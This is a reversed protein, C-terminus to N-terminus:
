AGALQELLDESIDMNAYVAQVDDNDELLDMLKILTAAATGDLAVQTLPKWIIRGEQATGFQGELADRVAAFDSVECTIEHGEASSEVDQAGADLAAEFVVEADGIEALYRLYGVQEFSFSVSGTEGLNGGHRTLGARIEAATRNRNDTLAEIILAVGQPGYGEYRIAEYQAGDQNGLAAKIARDIRDNPMNAARAAAIATRLRPNNEPTPDGCEKVAVTIERGVKTFIKARKKDQAGKRHMINKFKSHGAMTPATWGKDSHM